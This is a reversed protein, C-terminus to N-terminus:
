RNGQADLGASGGLQDLDPSTKFSVSLIHIRKLLVAGHLAENNITPTASFVAEYRARTSLYTMLELRGYPSNM